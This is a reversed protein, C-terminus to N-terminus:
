NLLNCKKHFTPKDIWKDIECRLESEIARRDKQNGSKDVNWPSMTQYFKKSRRASKKCVPCIGDKTVTRAVEEFRVEM